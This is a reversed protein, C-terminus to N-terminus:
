AGRRSTLSSRSPRSRRRTPRNGRTHDYHWHTDLLYRVPKDTWQRIQAIDERATSPLYCADVVFVERDGVIVTTNGQPFEDPADEHRIVYVGETLKTITRERTNVSPAAQAFPAPCLSVITLATAGLWSAATRPTPM